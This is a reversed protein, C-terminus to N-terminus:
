GQVRFGLGRFGVDGVRFGFGVLVRIGFRFCQKICVFVKTIHTCIYM